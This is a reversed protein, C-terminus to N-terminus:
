KIEKLVRSIRAYGYGSKSKWGYDGCTFGEVALAEAADGETEFDGLPEYTYPPLETDSYGVIARWHVECQVIEYAM